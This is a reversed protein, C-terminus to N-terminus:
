IQKLLELEIQLKGIHQFLVIEKAHGEVKAQSKNGCTFLESSGELLHKKRQSVQIPHMAHDADIKQLSKSGSIAEM